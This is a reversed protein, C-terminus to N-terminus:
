LDSDGLTVFWNDSNLLLEESLAGQECISVTLRLTPMGMRRFGFETLASILVSHDLITCDVYAAKNRQSFEVCSTVLESAIQKDQLSMIDYITAKDNLLKIVAYGFVVDRCRMQLIRFRQSPNDIFRWNLYASTRDNVIRFANKANAWFCDHARNFHSVENVVLSNGHTRRKRTFRLCDTIHYRLTTLGTVGRYGLTAIGIRYHDRGPFGFFVPHQRSITSSFLSVMAPQIGQCRWDTAICNDVVQPFIVRHGDVILSCNISPYAGVIGGNAEAIVITSCPSSLLHKQYKWNWARISRNGGFVHNVLSNIGVEDGQKYLRVHWNNHLQEHRSM